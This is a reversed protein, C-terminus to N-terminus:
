KTNTVLQYVSSNIQSGTANQMELTYLVPSINFMNVKTENGTIVNFAWIKNMWKVVKDFLGISQGNASNRAYVRQNTYITYGSSLAHQIGIEIYSRGIAELDSTLISVKLAGSTSSRNENLSNDRCGIYIFSTENTIEDQATLTCTLQQSGGGSCNRTVGLNTYNLDSIGIRCYASENTSISVTPTTDATDCANNTDTNWNTCGEGGDSTLNYSAIGPPTTDPAVAAVTLNFNDKQCQQMVYQVELSNLAKKFWWLVKVHGPTPSAGDTGLAMLGVINANASMFQALTGNVIRRSNYYLSVNTSSTDYVNFTGTFLKFSQNNMADPETGGFADIGMDLAFCDTANACKSAVNAGKVFLFDGQASSGQTVMNDTTASSTANTCLAFSRNALPATNGVTCAQRGGDYHTSKNASDFTVAGSETCTTGNVIDLNAETGSNNLSMVLADKVDQATTANASYLSILFMFIWILQKTKM